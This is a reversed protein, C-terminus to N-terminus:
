RPPTKVAQARCPLPPTGRCEHEHKVIGELAEGWEDFRVSHSPDGVLPDGVMWNYIRRALVPAAVSTGNMRFTENSRVAAARIGKQWEDEECAAYVVPLPRSGVSSYSAPMGDSRRFGGVAITYQGTALSSLTEQDDDLQVDAFTSQVGVGSDGPDDREIWADITVAAADTAKDNPELRIEIEWRGAPVLPGPDDDCAQTPAMALLVLARDGNPVRTDHLLMAVAENCSTDTLPLSAGPGVWDSWDRDPTRVRAELRRDKRPRDYWIEVFSDTTDGKTLDFRLLASRNSRVRRRVHCRAERSNGAGVVIAFNKRRAEILEDLAKEIMSSGDHPGAYSGYSINVVIPAEPECRDLVYRVADLLQASLSGGSSDAATLAPLQVFILPATSAADSEGTLPDPSGGAMALVHGGHTSGWVRRRPDDYAILHDIRRYADAEDLAQGPAPARVVQLVENMAARTLERGYGTRAPASWHPPFQKDNSPPHSGQDWLAAIRTSCKDRGGADFRENLFPCGFDIVALARKLKGLGRKKGARVPMPLAEAPRFTSPDCANGFVGRPEARAASEADRFPVAMEWVIGHPNTELWDRRDSAVDATFYKSRQKGTAGPIPAKYIAPITWNPDEHAKLLSEYDPARAIIRFLRPKDPPPEKGAFRRLGRWESARAWRYYPDLTRLPAGKTQYPLAQGEPPKWRLM